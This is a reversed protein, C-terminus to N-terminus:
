TAECGDSSPRKGLKEAVTASRYRRTHYAAEQNVGDGARTVLGVLAEGAIKPTLPRGLQHM